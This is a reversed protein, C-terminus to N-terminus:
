SASLHWVDMERSRAIAHSSPESVSGAGARQSAPQSAHNPVWLVGGYRRNDPTTFMLVCAVYDAHHRAGLTADTAVDKRGPSDCPLCVGPLQLLESSLPLLSRHLYTRIESPQPRIQGLAVPDGNLLLLSCAGCALCVPGSGAVGLVTEEVPCPGQSREQGGKLSSRESGLPVREQEWKGVVWRVKIKHM